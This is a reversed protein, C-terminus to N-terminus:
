TERRPMLLYEDFCTWSPMVLRLVAAMLMKVACLVSEEVLLIDNFVGEDSGGLFSIAKKGFM